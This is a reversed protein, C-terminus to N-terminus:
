FNNLKANKLLWDEYEKNYTGNAVAEAVARDYIKRNEANQRIVNLEATPVGAIYRSIAARAEPNKFPDGGM